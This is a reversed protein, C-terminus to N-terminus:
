NELHNTSAPVKPNGQSRALDHWCEMLHWLLKQVEPKVRARGEM